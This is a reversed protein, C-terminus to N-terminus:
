IIQQSLALTLIYHLQYLNFYNTTNHYSISQKKYQKTYYLITMTITITINLNIAITITITITIIITYYLM